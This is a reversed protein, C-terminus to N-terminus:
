KSITNIDYRIISQNFDLEIVHMKLIKGIKKLILSEIYHLYYPLLRVNIKYLSDTLSQM